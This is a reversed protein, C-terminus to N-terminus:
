LGAGSREDRRRERKLKASGRWRTKAIQAAKRDADTMKREVMQPVHGRWPYGWCDLRYSCVGPDFPEPRIVEVSKVITDTGNTRATMM